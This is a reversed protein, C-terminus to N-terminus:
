RLRVGRLFLWAWKKAFLLARQKYREKTPLARIHAPEDFLSKIFGLAPGILHAHLFWYTSNLVLYVFVAVDFSRWVLQAFVFTIVKYVRWYVDNLTWFLKHLSWYLKHLAYASWKYALSSTEQAELQWHSVQSQLRDIRAVINQSTNTPLYQLGKQLRLLLKVFFARRRSNSGLLTVHDKYFARSPCNMFFTRAHIALTEGVLHSGIRSGDRQPTLAKAKVFQDWSFHNYPDKSSATYESWLADSICVGDLFFVKTDQKHPWLTAYDSKQENFLYYISSKIKSMEMRDRKWTKFNDSLAPDFIVHGFDTNHILLSNEIRSTHLFAFSEPTQGYFDSIREFDVFIQDPSVGKTITFAGNELDSQAMTQLKYFLTHQPTIPILVRENTVVHPAAAPLQSRSFVASRAAALDWFANFVPAGIRRILEEALSRVFFRREYISTRYGIMFFFDYLWVLVLLAFTPPLVPEAALADETGHFKKQFANGKGQLYAKKIFSWLSLRSDHELALESLFLHPGYTNAILMNLPTESGGYTIGPSFRFGTTKFVASKYSANGGLLARSHQPSISQSKLWETRNHHYAQAPLSARPTLSYPGGIAMQEPNDKHLTLVSQLYDSNQLRCDDDLFLLFNGRAHTLGLNRAHNVGMLPSFLFRVNEM